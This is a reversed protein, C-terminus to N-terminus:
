EPPIQESLSVPGEEVRMEPIGKSLPQSEMELLVLPEWGQSVVEM